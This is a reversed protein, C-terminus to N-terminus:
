CVALEDDVCGLIESSSAFSCDGDEMVIGAKHCEPANIENKADYWLSFFPGDPLINVEERKQRFLM